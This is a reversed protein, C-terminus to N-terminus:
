VELLERLDQEELGKMLPEREDMTSAILGRKRRQLELVREEVTGRLILRYANVVRSQGFRHARDIAQAEVAPNWWPDLLFVRDAQTLNLGYGGAKLSILFARCAKDQQFRQIANHRDLTSGDLYSFHIGLRELIERCLLLNEVFQSFILVKSGSEISEHLAEQFVPWKGSLEDLSYSETVTKSLGTLRLDCCAQRLRLLVTLMTMRAGGAGKRRHAARIEERGEEILRRYVELQAASPECWLVQEIKDPLDKLVEAKSRRLFFPRILRQLRCASEEAQATGTTQLPKEFREAFRARDGLYGPLLVQFISWLDRVGNEIPTGTLAICSRYRLSRIAKATDTDPNRIFSAEDLVLVEFSCESYQLLDKVALQYSTILVDFSNTLDFHKERERGQVLLVKLDPAFRQLEAHWNSMLSKPCIVLAQPRSSKTHRLQWRIAAISQLTKGLGMDDGLLAGQGAEIRQILWAVGDLQYPRLIDALNGIERKLKNPDYTQDRVGALTARETFPLFYDQHHARLRLGSATIQPSVDSMCHEFDECTKTDIIYRKHNHGPLTNQGTRLLRLVENRAIKFGDAATYDLSAELWDITSAAPRAHRFQLRPQVRLWQKTTHLWNQDQTIQFDQQLRPLDSAYFRMVEPEGRLEFVGDGFTSPQLNCSKLRKLITEELFRNQVYFTNTVNQDEIPYYQNECGLKWRLKQFECWVEIQVHRANGQIHLNIKPNVPAIKFRRQLSNIGEIQFATELDGLHRALWRATQIEVQDNHQELLRQCVKAVEPNEPLRWPHLVKEQSHFLWSMGDPSLTPLALLRPKPGPALQIAVAHCGDEARHDTIKALPRIVTDTVHVNQHRGEGPKGIFIRPHDVLAHLFKPWHLAPVQLPMTQWPMQNAALWDALASTEPEGASIKLFVSLSRDSGGSGAHRLNQRRSIPTAPVAPIIGAALLTEPLFLSLIGPAAAVPTQAPNDSPPSANDQAPPKKSTTQPVLSALAVALAHECIRGERRALSCTCLNDVDTRARARLGTSVRHKGQGVRGRVLGPSAETVEVGGAALLARAAKMAQWGGIEGLWKETIDMEKQRSARDENM